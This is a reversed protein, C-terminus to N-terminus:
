GSTVPNSYQDGIDATLTLSEGAPHSTLSTTTGIESNSGDQAAGHGVTVLTAVSAYQTGSICLQMTYDDTATVQSTEGRYELAAVDWLLAVSTVEVMSSDFVRAEVDSMDGSPDNCTDILECVVSLTNDPDHTSPYSAFTSNLVSIPASTVLVTGSESIAIGNVALELSYAGAVSFVTTHTYEGASTHTLTYPGCSDPGSTVSVVVSSADTVTGGFYDTVHVTLTGEACAELTLDEVYTRSETGDSYPAASDLLTVETETCEITSGNVEMMVLVTGPNSFLPNSDLVEYLYTDDSVQALDSSGTETTLWSDESMLYRVSASPDAVDSSDRVHFEMNWSTNTYISPWGIQDSDIYCFTPECPLVTVAIATGPFLMQEDEEIVFALYVVGASTFEPWTGLISCRYQTDKDEEETAYTSYSTFAADTSVALYVEYGGTLNKAEATRPYLDISWDNGKVVADPYSPDVSAFYSNIDCFDDKELVTLTVATNSLSVGAVNLVLSYLGITRFEEEVDKAPTTTTYHGSGEHTMPISLSGSHDDPVSTVEIYVVGSTVPNGYQDAVDATLTLDTSTVHATLDTGEILSNVGDHAEGVGITLWASISSWEEGDVTVVAIYTGATHVDLTGLHYRSESEDWSLDLTTQLEYGANYINVGVGTEGAVGNGCADNIYVIVDLVDDPDHLAAFSAISSNGESPTSATVTASTTVGMDEGNVALGLTYIGEVAFETALTSTTYEGDTTHMLTYPGEIVPGSDVSVLVSAADSIAGGHYDTVHVTLTASSCAAFSLAEIYSRSTSRDAYPDAPDPLVTLAFVSDMYVVTASNSVRFALYVVGATAFEPWTGQIACRYQEKEIVESTTYTAYSAFTPDISVALTLVEVFQDPDGKNSVTYMDLDWDTGKFIADPFSSDESAFYSNAGNLDDDETDDTSDGKVRVGEMVVGYVPVPPLTEDAPHSDSMALTTTTSEYSVGDVKMRLSLGSGDPVCPLPPLSCRYVDHGVYTCGTEGQSLGWGTSYQVYVESHPMGYGDTDRIHLLIECVTDWAPQTSWEFFSHSSSFVCVGVPVEVDGQLFTADWKHSSTNSSASVTSLSYILLLVALLRVILHGTGMYRLISEGGIGTRYDCLLLLM